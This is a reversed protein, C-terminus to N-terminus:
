DLFQERLSLEYVSNARVGLKAEMLDGIQSLSSRSRLVM